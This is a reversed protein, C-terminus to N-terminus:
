MTSSPFWWRVSIAWNMVMEGLVLKWMNEKECCKASEGAEATRLVVGGGVREGSERIDM